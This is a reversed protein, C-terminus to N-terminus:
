ISNSLVKQKMFAVYDKWDIKGIIWVTINYLFHGNVTGYNYFLPIGSASANM